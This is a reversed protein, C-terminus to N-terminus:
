PTWRTRFFRWFGRHGLPERYEDSRMTKPRKEDEHPRPTSAPRALGGTPPSLHDDEQRAKEGRPGAAAGSLVPPMLGPAETPNTVLGRPVGSSRISGRVTGDHPTGPERRAGRLSPRRSRGSRASPMEPGRGASRSGAGDTLPRPMTPSSCQTAIMPTPRSPMTPPALLARTSSAGVTMDATGASHDSPKHASMRM